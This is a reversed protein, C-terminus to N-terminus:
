ANCKLTSDAVGFSYIFFYGLWKAGFKLTAKKSALTAILIIFFMGGLLVFINSIGEPQNGFAILVISYLFTLYFILSLIFIGDFIVSKIFQNRNM